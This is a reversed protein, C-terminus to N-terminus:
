RIHRWKALLSHAKGRPGVIRQWPKPPAAQQTSSRAPTGRSVAAEASCAPQAATPAQTINAAGREVQL